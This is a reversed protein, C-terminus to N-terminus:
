LSSKWREVERKVNEFSPAGINIRAKLAVELSFVSKMEDTYASDIKKLDLQDLPV